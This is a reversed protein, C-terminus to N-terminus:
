YAIMRGTPVPPMTTSRLIDTVSADSNMACISAPTQSIAFMLAGPCITSDPSTDAQSRSWVIADSSFIQRVMPSETAPDAVPLDAKAGSGWPKVEAERNSARRRAQRGKVNGM